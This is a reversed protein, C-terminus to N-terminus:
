DKLDDSDDFDDHDLDRDDPLSGSGSTSIGEDKINTDVSTSNMNGGTSNSNTEFSTGAGRDLGEGIDEGLTDPTLTPNFEESVPASPTEGYDPSTPARSEDYSSENSHNERGLARSVHDAFGGSAPKIGNPNEGNTSVQANKDKKNAGTLDSTLMGFDGLATGIGSTGMTDMAKVGAAAVTALKSYGKLAKGAGKKLKRGAYQSVRGLKSNGVKSAVNGVAHAGRGIAKAGRGIASNSVTDKVSSMTDNVAGRAVNLRDRVTRNSKDLARSNQIEQNRLDQRRTRSDHKNQRKNQKDKRKEKAEEEDKKFSQYLSEKLAHPSIKSAGYKLHGGLGGMGAKVAGQHFSKMGAVGGKAAKAMGKGAAIGSRGISKAAVLSGVINLKLGELTNSQLGVIGRLLKEAPFLFTVCMILYPWNRTPDEACIKIGINVLMVYIAAHLFQIASNAFFEKFWSQLSQAKGDGMKDIVYMAVVLPFLCVLLIVVFLRKYYMFVMAFLQFLLICWAIAYVMRGQSKALNKLAVMPDDILQNQMKQLTEIEYAIASEKYEEVFERLALEAEGAVEGRYTCMEQFEDAYNTFKSVDLNIKQMYQKALEYNSHGHLSMKGKQDRLKSFTLSAYIRSMLGSGSGSISVGSFIDRLYENSVANITTRGYVYEAISNIKENIVDDDDATWKDCHQNIYKVIEKYISRIKTEVKYGDRSYHPSNKIESIVTNLTGAVDDPSMPVFNDAQKKYSLQYLTDLRKELEKKTEKVDADEGLFNHGLYQAIYTVSFEGAALSHPSLSETLKNTIYPIAPLFYPVILLIIAGTIWYQIYKKTKSENPTGVAMLTKVGMYLLSVLYVIIAVYRLGSYITGIAEIVTPNGLVGSVEDDETSIIGGM